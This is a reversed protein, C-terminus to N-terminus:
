VGVCIEKELFFCPERKRKSAIEAGAYGVYGIGGWVGMNYVRSRTNRAAVVLMTAIEFNRGVHWHCHRIAKQIKNVACTRIDDGVAFALSLLMAM